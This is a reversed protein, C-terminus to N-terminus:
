VAGCWRAACRLESVHGLAHQDVARVRFFGADDHQVTVTEFIEVDLGGGLPLEFSVDVEGLDDPYLRAELRGEDFVAAVAM